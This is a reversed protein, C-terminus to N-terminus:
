GGRMGQGESSSKSVLVGSTNQLCVNASPFPKRRNGAVVFKWGKEGQSSCDCWAHSSGPWRGWCSCGGGMVREGPADRDRPIGWCSLEGQLQGPERGCPTPADSPQPWLVLHQLQEAGDISWAPTDRCTQLLMEPAWCGASVCGAVAAQVGLGTSQGGM